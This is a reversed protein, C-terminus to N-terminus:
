SRGAMLAAKTFPTWPLALATRVSEALSGCESLFRVLVDAPTREFLRFFYDPASTPNQTMARLFVRDLRAYHALEFQQPLRQHMTLAQALLRSQRQIRLFDYGSSPKIRGGRIGIGYGGDVPRPSPAQAPMPLAGQEHFLVEYARGNTKEELWTHLEGQLDSTCLGAMDLSTAEVMAEDPAFPLVYFFLLRGAVTVPQFSILEVVSSNFVPDQTRVHWGTFRQTWSNTAPSSKLPRSDFLFRTSLLGSSTDVKYGNPMASIATATM